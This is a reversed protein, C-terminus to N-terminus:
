FGFEGGASPADEDGLPPPGDEAPPAEQPPTVQDPPAQPGSDDAPPQYGPPWIYASTTVDIMITVDGAQEVRAEGRALKLLPSLLAKLVEPKSDHCKRKGTLQELLNRADDEKSSHAARKLSAMIQAYLASNPDRTTNASRAPPRQAQGRPTQAAGKAPPRQGQAPPRQGQAPPRQGQAPPRQGGRGDEGESERWGSSYLRGRDKRKWLYKQQAEGAKRCPVCVAHERKWKDRWGPDWVESYIDLKKSCRMIANSECGEAADGYTFRKNKEIYEQEGVTEGVFKGLGYLAYERYMHSGKMIRDSWPILAWGGRGFAENLARRFHVAPVYIRGDPTIEVIAPDVPKGLHEQIVQEFPENGAKVYRDPIPPKPERPQATALAHPGNAPPPGPLRQVPPAPPPTSTGRPPASPRAPPTQTGPKNPSEAM